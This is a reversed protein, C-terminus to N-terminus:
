FEMQMYFEKRMSGDKLRYANPKESVIRFGMKEYLARARDNGEMFELELITVGQRQQAIHIMEEFMATGIGLGWYAKKLAIGIVARHGLKVRNTFRIECNGAIEGNVECVLNCVTDSERVSNIWDLEQQETMNCEEPCRVLFETEGSVTKIHELCDLADAEVPNRLIATREDKMKIQKEQILM